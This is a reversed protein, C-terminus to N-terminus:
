PRYTVTPMGAANPTFVIGADDAQTIRYAEPQRENGRFTGAAHTFDHPVAGWICHAPQPTVQVAVGDAVNATGTFALPAVDFGNFYIQVYAM